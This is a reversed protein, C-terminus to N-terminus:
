GEKTPPDPWLDITRTKAFLWADVVIAIAILVSDFIVFARDQESIADFLWRTPLALLWAMLIWM